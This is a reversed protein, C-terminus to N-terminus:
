LDQWPRQMIWVTTPLGHEPSWLALRGPVLSVVESGEDCMADLAVELPHFCGGVSREHGAFLYASQQAGRSQLFRLLGKRGHQQIEDPLERAYRADLAEGLTHHLRLYFKARLRPSELELLIRPKRDKRVFANVWSREHEADRRFPADAESM